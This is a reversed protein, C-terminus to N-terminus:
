KSGDTFEGVRIALPSACEPNFCAKMEFGHGHSHRWCERDFCETGNHVHRYKEDRVETTKNKTM